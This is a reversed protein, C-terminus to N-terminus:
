VCPHFLIFLREFVQFFSFRNFARIRINNKLKAITLDVRKTYPKSLLLWKIAIPSFGMKKLEGLSHYNKLTKSMKKGNVMLHRVHVWYKAPIKGTLAQIQAIENEHHSFINDLGGAHIDMPIKLFRSCLVPCEANWSPM